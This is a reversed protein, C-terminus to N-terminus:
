SAAVGIVTLSVSSTHAESAEGNIVCQTGDNSAGWLYVQTVRYDTPTATASYLKKTAVPYTLTAVSATGAQWDVSGYWYQKVLGSAYREVYWNGKTYSQTIHDTLTNNGILIEDAKLQLTSTGGGASVLVSGRGNMGSNAALTATSGANKTTCLEVYGISDAEDDSSKLEFENGGNFLISDYVGLHKQAQITGVGDCLAIVSNDQAKGIEAKGAGFSALKTGKNNYIEVGDAGFSALTNHNTDHVEFANATMETHTGVYEGDDNVKAVELNGAPTERILTQLNDVNGSIADVDGRMTDGAGKSGIAVPMGDQVIYEVTDGKGINGITPVTINNGGVNIQVTGNTSASTATATKRTIGSSTNGSLQRALEIYDM